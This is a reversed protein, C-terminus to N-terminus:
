GENRLLAGLWTALAVASGAISGAASLHLGVTGLHWTGDASKWYGPALGPVPDTWIDPAKLFIGLPACIESQLFADLFAGRREMGAEILRTGTNSYSIETGTEFNLRRFRACYAILEPGTTATYISHGHLTMAERVDPLGGSMDLARGVTVAALAPQLEPLLSGLTDDLSIIDPRLLVHSALFHKTVSAYRSVTDPTFPRLTSLSEVGGSVAFRIGGADFGVIAGGPTEATWDGAFTRAATEAAQWHRSTPM